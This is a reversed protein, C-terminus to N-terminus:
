QYRAFPSCSNSDTANSPTVDMCVRHMFNTSPSSADRSADLSGSMGVRWTHFLTPSSIFVCIVFKLFKDIFTTKVARCRELDVPSSSSSVNTSDGFQEGEM